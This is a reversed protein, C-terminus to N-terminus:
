HVANAYGQFDGLDKKFQIASIPAAATTMTNWIAEAKNCIIGCEKLTKDPDLSPSAEKCKKAEWEIMKKLQKHENTHEYIDEIGSMIKIIRQQLDKTLKKM